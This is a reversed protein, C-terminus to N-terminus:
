ATALHRRRFYLRVGVPRGPAELLEEVHALCLDRNLGLLGAVAVLKDEAFIAPRGMADRLQEPTADRALLSAWLDPRGVGRPGQSALIDVSRGARFLALRMADSQQISSCIIDAGSERSLRAAFADSESSDSDFITLWDGSGAPHLILVRDASLAANTEDYEEALLTRRIADAATRQANPGGVRIHLSAANLGM